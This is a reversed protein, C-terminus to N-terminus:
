FAHSTLHPLVTEVLSLSEEMFSSHTLIAAYNKLHLGGLRAPPLGHTVRPGRHESGLM